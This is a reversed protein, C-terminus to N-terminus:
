HTNQKIFINVNGEKQQLWIWGGGRQVAMVLFVITVQVLSQTDMAELLDEARSGSYGILLQVVVM